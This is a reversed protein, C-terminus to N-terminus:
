QPIRDDLTIQRNHGAERDEYAKDIIELIKKIDPSNKKSGQM